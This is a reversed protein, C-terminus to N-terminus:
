FNHGPESANIWRTQINLMTKGCGNREFLGSLSYSGLYVPDNSLLGRDEAYLIFVMRLLTTLLGGYVDEPAEKLVQRLLEGSTAEDASQFGRMLENLARLVQEALKTSVENQYKRSQQLIWPLRQNTPLFFLRGAELLLHLAAVIPRGAVECMAKFPFTLHGTSEGRPAYVLRILHPTVLLGIPIQNARLLREFRAQPSAQWRKEHQSEEPAEDLAANDARVEILMLWSGPNAPDPVAYTPTLVEGYEPLPVELTAPLEPGGM